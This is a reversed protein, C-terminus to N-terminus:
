VGAGWGDCLQRSTGGGRSGCLCSNDPKIIGRIKLKVMRREEKDVISEKKWPNM